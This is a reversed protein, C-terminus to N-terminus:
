EGDIADEGIALPHLGLATGAVGDDKELFGRQLEPDHGRGDLRSEQGVILEPQSEPIRKETRHREQIHERDAGAQGPRDAAGDGDQQQEQVTRQQELVAQPGVVHFRRQEEAVAAADVVTQLPGGNRAALRRM